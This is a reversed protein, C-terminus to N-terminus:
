VSALDFQTKQIPQCQQWLGAGILIVILRAFVFDFPVYTVVPPVHDRVSQTQLPLNEASQRPMEDGGETM